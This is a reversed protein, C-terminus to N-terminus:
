PHRYGAINKIIEVHHAFPVWYRFLNLVHSPNEDLFQWLSSYLSLCLWLMLVCYAAIKVYIYLRTEKALNKSRLTMVGLTARGRRWEDLHVLCLIVGFLGSLYHGCLLCLATGVLACGHEFVTM